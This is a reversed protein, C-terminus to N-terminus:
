NILPPNNPIIDDKNFEAFRSTLQILIKDIWRLVDIREETRGKLIAMKSLLVAATEQDFSQAVEYKNGKLDPCLKRRITTVRM